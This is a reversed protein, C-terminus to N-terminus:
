RSSDADPKLQVQWILQDPQQPHPSKRYGFQYTAQLLPILGKYGFDRCRFKPYRRVVETHFANLNVWATGEPVLTRYAQILMDLLTLSNLAIAAEATSEIASATTMAEMGGSNQAETIPAAVPSRCPEPLPLLLVPSIPPPPPPVSPSRSLVIFKTCARTYATVSRDSGMGVVSAGTERLRQVLPTFDSDSSVLVFRRIQKRWRLEIADVALRLDTSNKGSVYCPQHVPLLNWEALYPKWRVTRGLSWDAYARRIIVSSCSLLREFPTLSEPLINEADILLAIPQMFLNVQCFETIKKVHKM